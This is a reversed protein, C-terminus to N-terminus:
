HGFSRCRLSGVCVKDPEIICPTGVVGGAVSMLHLSPHKPEADGHGHTHHPASIPASPATNETRARKLSVLVERAIQDIKQDEM